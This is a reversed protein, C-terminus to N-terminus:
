PNSKGTFKGAIHDMEYVLKLLQTTFKMINEADKQSPPNLTHTADNGEQRIKDVWPKMPPTIYGAKVIDDIYNVFSDGEKGNCKDVAIHMLIKRSLLQCASFAGISMCERLEEYVKSMDLPLGDLVEGYKATPYIKGDYEIVLGYSCVPCVLWVTMGGNNKSHHAVEIGGVNNGCNSCHVSHSNGGRGSVNGMGNFQESM